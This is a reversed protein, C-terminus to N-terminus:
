EKCLMKQILFNKQTKKDYRKPSFFNHSSGRQAAEVAKYFGQINIWIKNPLSDCLLNLLSLDSVYCDYYFQKLAVIHILFNDPKCWSTGSYQDIVKEFVAEITSCNKDDIYGSYRFNLDDEETHLNESTHTSMIVSSCKHFTKKKFPARALSMHRSLAAHQAILLKLKKLLDSESLGAAQAITINKM